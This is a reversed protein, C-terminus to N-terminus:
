WFLLGQVDGNFHSAVTSSSFMADKVLSRDFVIIEAQRAARDGLMM